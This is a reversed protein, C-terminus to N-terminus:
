NVGFHRQIPRAQNHSTKATTYVAALRVALDGSEIGLGSVKSNLPNFIDRCLEEQLIDTVVDSAIV